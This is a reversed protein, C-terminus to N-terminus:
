LINTIKQHYLFLYIMLKFLKLFILKISTNKLNYPGVQPSKIYEPCLEKVRKYRDRICM